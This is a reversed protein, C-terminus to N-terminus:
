GAERVQPTRLGLLIWSPDIPNNTDLEEYRAILETVIPETRWASARDRAEANPMSELRGIVVAFLQGALQELLAVNSRVQATLEDPPLEAAMGTHLDVLFDMLSYPDAFVDSACQADVANWERFFQQVRTHLEWTRYLGALSEADDALRKLRDHFYLLGPVAWYIITDWIVKAVTVQANGMLEYQDEYAVLWIQSLLLFVQNHAVTRDEGGDLATVILDTILGNSIGMLDGGSSYLPDISVGAEGTLFWRDSSYVQQASYAYNHMVRFDRIKAIQNQVAEACQPEHNGLWDLAKEFTNFESHPHLRPDAVIGVSTAGSALPILWVWYGRGMLHNTSLRRMGCPVRSKWGPDVSWTDVDIEADIRFWSANMRHGVPRELGLQRKLLGARGSADVFWRPFATWESEAGHVDVEHREAGARLEVRGIRHGDLFRVGLESAKIGLFNELRGRDIQYAPLPANAIQGYEVRCAIDSNDGHAIFMRLGFKHLQESDLHDQLGLVTRLYHAQMEVSSEGVKHATEPVPHACREVVMVDLSPREQKIQIALTLGAIGGGAILVDVEHPGTAGAVSSPNCDHSKSKM